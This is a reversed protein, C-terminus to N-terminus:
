IKTYVSSNRVFTPIELFEEEDILIPSGRKGPKGKIFQYKTLKGKQVWDQLTRVKIHYKKEIEKLTLHAM